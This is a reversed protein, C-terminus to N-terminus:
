LCPVICMRMQRHSVLRRASCALQRATLLSAQVPLGGDVGAFDEIQLSTMRAAANWARSARRNPMTCCACCLVLTATSGRDCLLAPVPLYVRRRRTVSMDVHVKGDVGLCYCISHSSVARAESAPSVRATRTSASIQRCPTRIVKGRRATYSRLLVAMRM